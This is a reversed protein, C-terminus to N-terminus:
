RSPLPVPEAPPLGRQRRLEDVLRLSANVISELPHSACYNDMWVTMAANDAPLVATDGPAYFNYASVFGLVWSRRVAGYPSSADKTWVGCSQSGVGYVALQKQLQASASQSLPAAFLAAIALAFARNWGRRQASRVPNLNM